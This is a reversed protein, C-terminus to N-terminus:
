QCYGVWRLGTIVLSCIKRLSHKVLAILMDDKCTVHIVIHVVVLSRAKGMASPASILPNKPFEEYHHSFLMAISIRPSSSM